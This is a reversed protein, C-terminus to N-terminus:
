ETLGNFKFCSLTALAQRPQLVVARHSASVAHQGEHLSRERALTLCIPECLARKRRERAPKVRLVTIIEDGNERAIKEASMAVEGRRGCREDICKNCLRSSSRTGNCGGRQMDHARALGQPLEHVCVVERADQKPRELM